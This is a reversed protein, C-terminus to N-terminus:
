FSLLGREEYVSPKNEEHLIARGLGFLIAMIGDIRKGGKLRVPRINENVDHQVQVNGIMWRLVPCGGHEIEKGLVLKELEKTPPSLTKYGQRTEVMSLGEGALSGALQHAQWPDFGMEEIHYKTAIADIDKKIFDYDIVNGPTARIRGDAIYKDYPFNDRKIRAKLNDQPIWFYPILQWKLRGEEPPFILAMATIDIKSSLDLGAYCTKGYLKEPVVLGAAADWADLSIWGSTKYDVWQNLRLQRFLRENAQTEKAKIVANRVKELEITHGLSPNALRWNKEDWPDANEPIGYIVSYFTPDKIVKKAVKEAYDHVEWGISTRDPDDGATTIVFFLPQTRADGSGMTMIDYLDRNPQAHLEDFIVGHVNLGHKTFSEASLVQYYSSTPKYVLRKASLVPKIVKRLDRNQEVMAFAVDFVISAQQRDAACGYVEAGWEDDACLLKLAVAAALESKGNKKPVEIYATNYQRFGNKKVTGFVDSIINRQWPLLDFQVGRWKGKTHKLSQIFGLARAAQKESFM